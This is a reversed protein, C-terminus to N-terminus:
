NDKTIDITSSRSARALVNMPPLPGSDVPDPDCPTGPTGSDCMAGGPPCDCCCGELLLLATAAATISMRIRMRLRRAHRRAIPPAWYGLPSHWFAPLVRYSLCPVSHALRRPPITPPSLAGGADTPQRILDQRSIDM